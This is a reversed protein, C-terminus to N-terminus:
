YRKSFGYSPRFMSQPSMMRQSSMRQPSMSPPPLETESSSNNYYLFGGIALVLVLGAVGLGIYLYKKNKKDQEDQDDPQDTPSQTPQYQTPGPTERAFNYRRQQM